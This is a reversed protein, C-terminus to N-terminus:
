GAKGAGETLLIIQGAILPAYSRGVAHQITMIDELSVEVVGGKFVEMALNYRAAIKSPQVNGPASPEAALLADAVMEGVTWDKLATEGNGGQEARKIERGDPTTLRASFDIKM